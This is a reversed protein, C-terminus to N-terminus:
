SRTRKTAARVLYDTCTVSPSELMKRAKCAICGKSFSCNSCETFDLEDWIKGLELFTELLKGKEVKKVPKIALACAKMEMTSSIYYSNKLATCSEFSDFQKLEGFESFSTRIKEEFMLLEKPSLRWPLQSSKLEYTPSVYLFYGLVLKLDKVVNILSDLRDFIPKLPITRVAVLINAEMLKTINEKVTEFGRRGTIMEYTDDNDGYLTVAVMEPPRKQLTNLIEETLISGNTYITIKIGMDYVSNYIKCFDPHMFVEGGTFLAYLLGENRAEFFLTMWEEYSLSKKEFTGGLYCMRCNFNCRSTLEFEGVLPIHNKAGVKLIEKKITQYNNM